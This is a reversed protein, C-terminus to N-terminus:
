QARRVCPAKPSSVGTSYQPMFALCMVTGVASCLDSAEAPQVVARTYDLLVIEGFTMECGASRRVCRRSRDKTSADPHGNKRRPEGIRLRRYDRRSPHRGNPPVPSRVLECRDLPVIAMSWREGRDGVCDGASIAARVWTTTPVSLPRSLLRPLLAFSLCAPIFTALAVGSIGFWKAMTISLALNLIAEMVLVKAPLGLIQMAPTSPCRRSPVSSM